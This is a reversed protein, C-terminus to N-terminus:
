DARLKGRRGRERKSTQDNEKEIEDKTRRRKQQHFELNHGLYERFTAQM